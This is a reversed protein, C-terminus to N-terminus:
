YPWRRGIGRQALAWRGLVAVMGVRLPGHLRRPSTAIWSEGLYDVVVGSQHLRNLFDLDEAVQLEEHMGGLALYLARRCYFLNARVGFSRKGFEVLFFFFHDLLDDGDAVLRVCGARSGGRARALVREALDPAARSDADLFILLEGGAIRAAHNRARAVGAKKDRLLTVRLGTRKAFNHVRAATDDDSGNEAVIAEVRNRLTQAAVSALTAEVLKAENHAPIVFTVREPRGAPVALAGTPRLATPPERIDTSTAM